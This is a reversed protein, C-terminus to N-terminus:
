QWGLYQGIPIDGIGMQQDMQIKVGGMDVNLNKFDANISNQGIHQEKIHQIAQPSLVGFATIDVTQGPQL